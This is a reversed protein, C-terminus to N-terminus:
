PEMTFVPLYLAGVVFAIGLFLGILSVILMVTSYKRLNILLVVDLGLLLLVLLLYSQIWKSVDVVFQTWTPLTTGMDAFMVEFQPVAFIFIFLFASAGLFHVVISVIVAISFKDKHNENMNVGVQKCLIFVHLVFM